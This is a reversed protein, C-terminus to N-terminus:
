NTNSETRPVDYKLNTKRRARRPKFNLGGSQNTPKKLGAKFFNGACELQITRKQRM